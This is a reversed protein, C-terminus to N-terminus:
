ESTGGSLEESVLEMARDIPIEVIGADRDVWGYNSLAERQEAVVQNKRTSPNDYVKAEISNHKAHGYFAQLGIVTAVMLIAFVATVIATPAANPDENQKAM